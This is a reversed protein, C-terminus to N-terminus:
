FVGAIGKRIVFVDIAQSFVTFAIDLARAQFFVPEENFVHNGCLGSEGQEGETFFLNRFQSLSYVFFRYECVIAVSILFSRIVHRGRVLFTSEGCAFVSPSIVSLQTQSRHMMCQAM